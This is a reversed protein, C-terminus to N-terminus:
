EEYSPHIEGAKMGFAQALKKVTIYTPALKNGEIRSIHSQLLGARQALDEQSWARQQRLSRVRQALYDRSPAISEVEATLKALPLTDLDSDSRFVCDKMRQFILNRQTDDRTNQYEIRLAYITSHKRLPLQKLVKLFIELEEQQKKLTPNHATSPM